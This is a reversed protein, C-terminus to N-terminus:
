IERCCSKVPRRQRVTAPNADDSGRDDVRLQEVRGQERERFFLFVVLGRDRGTVIEM